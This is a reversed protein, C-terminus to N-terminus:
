PCPEMGLHHQTYLAAGVALLPVVIGLALLARPKM